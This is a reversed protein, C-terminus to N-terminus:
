QKNRDKSISLTKRASLIVYIKIETYKFYTQKGKFPSASALIMFFDTINNQSELIVMHHLCTWLSSSCLKEIKRSRM